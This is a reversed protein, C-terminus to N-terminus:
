SKPSVAGLTQTPQQARRSALPHAPMIAAAGRQRGKLEHKDLLRVRTADRASSRRAGLQQLTLRRSPRLRRRASM